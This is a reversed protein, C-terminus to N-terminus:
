RDVRDLSQRIQETMFAERDLLIAPVRVAGSLDEGRRLLELTEIARYGIEWLDPVVLLEVAGRKWLDIAASGSAVGFVLLGERFRAREVAVVISEDGEVLLIDLEPRTFVLEEVARGVEGTSAVSIPPLIRAGPAFEAVKERMAATVVGEGDPGVITAVLPREGIRAVAREALWVGAGPADSIVAPIGDGLSRYAAVFPIGASVAEEAYRRLPTIQGPVVVAGGFGRSLASELVSIQEDRTRQPPSGAVLPIEVDVALDTAARVIGDRMAGWPGGELGGAVVLIRPSDGAAPPRPRWTESHGTAGLTLDGCVLLLFPIAAAIVGARRPLRIM